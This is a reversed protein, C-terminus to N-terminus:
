QAVTDSAKFGCDSIKMYEKNVIIRWSSNSFYSEPQGYSVAVYPIGPTTYEAVCASTSTATTENIGPVGKLCTDGEIAYNTMFSVNKGLEGWSKAVGILCAIVAQRDEGETNTLDMILSINKSKSLSAFFVSPDGFVKYEHTTNTENMPPNTQLCGASLILSFAIAFLLLLFLKNM